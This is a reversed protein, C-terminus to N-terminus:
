EASMGFDSVSWRWPASFAVLERSLSSTLSFLDSCGWIPIGERQSCSLGGGAFGDCWGLEGQAEGTDGARNFWAWKLWYIQIDASFTALGPSVSCSQHNLAWWIGWVLCLSSAAKGKQRHRNLRLIPVTAQYQPGVMIEQFGVVSLHSSQFPFHEM